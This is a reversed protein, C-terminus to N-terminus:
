ARYEVKGEFRGFGNVRNDGLGEILGARQIIVNFISPDLLDELLYGELTVSWTPFKPRTRMIIKGSVRVPRRDVYRPDGRLADIDKPGDYQLPVYLDTFRVAREIDKGNRSTRATLILTKRVNATPMVPGHLGEILYLGGRWELQGIERQLEPTRKRATLQAIQQTIPCEPDSLQINHCILPSTGQLFLTFYSM